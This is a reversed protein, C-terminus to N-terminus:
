SENLDDLEYVITAGSAPPTLSFNIVVNVPFPFWLDPLGMVLLSANAGTCVPDALGAVATVISVNDGCPGSGNRMFSATGRAYTITAQENQGATPTVVFNVSVVRIRKGIPCPVQVTLLLSPMTLLITERNPKM